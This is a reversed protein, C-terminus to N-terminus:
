NEDLLNYYNSNLLGSKTDSKVVLVLCINSGYFTLLKLLLNTKNVACVNVM